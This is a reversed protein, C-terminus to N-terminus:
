FPIEEDAESTAVTKAVQEAEEKDVKNNRPMEIRTFLYETYEGRKNKNKSTREWIAVNMEVETANQDEVFANAMLRILKRPFVIKGRRDPHNRNQKYDNKFINGQAQIYEEAM